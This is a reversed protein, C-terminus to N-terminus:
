LLPMNRVENGDRNAPGSLDVSSPSDRCSGRAISLISSIVSRSEDSSSSSWAVSEPGSQGVVRQACFGRCLSSSGRRRRGRHRRRAGFPFYFSFTFCTFFIM